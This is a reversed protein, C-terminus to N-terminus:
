IVREWQRRSCFLLRTINNHCAQERIAWQRGGIRDLVARGHHNRDAAFRTPKKASFLGPRAPPAGPRCLGRANTPLDSYAAHGM